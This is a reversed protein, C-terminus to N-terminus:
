KYKNEQQQRLHDPITCVPIPEMKHRNAAHLKKFLTLVQKQREDLVVEKKEEEPLANYAMAWELEAYTAGIQEEDTRNDEWLGDTPSAAIIQKAIGLTRALAYVESKLLDGIPSIDVGGDGYKTYFGVGFDEVKNGTGAVLFRNHAAFAYLTLMRLRSRTNAMTLSDQIDSPFSDQISSFVPTLDQDVLTVNSFKDKLWANHALARSLQDSAQFIPMNLVMTPKQTRACLTSTVASDIGGSVGVCFGTLGSETVYTCLWNVIHHIIKQTQMSQKYGFRDRETM